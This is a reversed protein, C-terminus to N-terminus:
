IIDGLRRSELEQRLSREWAAEGWITAPPAGATSLWDGSSPTGSLTWLSHGLASGRDRAPCTALPISYESQACSPQMHTSRPVGGLDYLWLPSKYIQAENSRWLFSHQDSVCTWWVTYEMIKLHVCKSIMIIYKKKYLYEENFTIHWLQISKM